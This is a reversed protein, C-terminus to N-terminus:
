AFRVQLLAFNVIFAATSLTHFKGALIGVEGVFNTLHAFTNSPTLTLCVYLIPGGDLFRTDAVVEKRPNRDDIDRRLLRYTVHILM